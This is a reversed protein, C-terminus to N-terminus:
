FINSWLIKHTENDKIMRRTGSLHSHKRFILKHERQKRLKGHRKIVVISLLYHLKESDSFLKENRQVRRIILSCSFSFKQLNWWSDCIHRCSMNREKEKIHICQLKCETDHHSKLNISYMVLDQNRSNWNYEFYRILM